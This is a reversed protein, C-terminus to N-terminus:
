AHVALFIVGKGKKFAADINERGEITVYKAIHEKTILPILFIGIFNEGFAQYSQRTLRCLEIAGLEGGLVRKINAYAIARHKPDLFFLLDWIRRGLFLSMRLPLIRVFPGLAKFLIYSLYDTM